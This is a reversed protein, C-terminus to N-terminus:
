GVGNLNAQYSDLTERATRAWTYKEEVRARGAHGIAKRRAPDQLLSILAEALARPSGAPVLLGSEEHVMVEPIGGVSSAVTPVGSAMTELITFPVNDVFTPAVAVDASAYVGPLEAYGLRGLLVIRDTAMAPQELLARSESASAGAFAFYANPVESWVLPMAELLVRAGKFLTPRGTFLVVLANSQSVLRRKGPAEPTFRDTRVGNYVVRVRSAPMGQEVLQSKMWESVSLIPGPRAFVFRECVRLFPELAVQWRESEHLGGGFRQAYCIEDWQMPITSHVTRVTKPSHYIAGYLLDPMHAHQSHVIDFREQRVLRPLNRLVAMQFGANYRFTDHAQSIVVVRARHDLTDEMQAKTVVGGSDPRELTLVTLDVLRGIERALEVAYTGAGGWVPLFDPALLCVRITEM